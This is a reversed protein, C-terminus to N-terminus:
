HKGGVFDEWMELSIKYREHKSRRDIGVSLIKLFLLAAIELPGASPARLM